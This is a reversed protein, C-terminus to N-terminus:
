SSKALKLVLNVRTITAASDVNFELIDGTSISTSTWSSVAANASSQSSLTPKNGGGGIISTGSRKVDFVVSGSVDAALYWNTITCTFPITIYGKSGTTIVSGGGDVTVGTAGAAAGSSTSITTVGANNITVDGTMAVDTAINSGNGVFIHASTLELDLDGSIINTM